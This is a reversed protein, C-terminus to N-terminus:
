DEWVQRRAQQRREEEAKREEREKAIRKTEKERVAREYQRVEESKQPTKVGLAGAIMRGATATSKEPRSSPSQAPSGNALRSTISFTSPLEGWATGVQVSPSVPTPPPANPVSSVKTSAATDPDSSTPSSAVEEDEWSDAVHRAQPSRQDSGSITLTNLYTAPKSDNQSSM